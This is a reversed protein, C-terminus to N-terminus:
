TTHFLQLSLPSHERSRCRHAPAIPNPWRRTSFGSYHEPWYLAEVISTHHSAWSMGWTAESNCEPIGIADPCTVPSGDDDIGVKVTVYSALSPCVKMVRLLDARTSPNVYADDTQQSPNTGPGGQCCDSAHIDNMWLLSMIPEVDIEVPQDQYQLTITPHRPACDSSITITTEEVSMTAVTHYRARLLGAHPPRSRRRCRRPFYALLSGVGWLPGLCVEPACLSVRPILAGM